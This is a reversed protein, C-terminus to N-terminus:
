YTGHVTVGVEKKAEKFEKSQILSRHARTIVQEMILGKNENLLERMCEKVIDEFLSNYGYTRELGLRKMAEKEM